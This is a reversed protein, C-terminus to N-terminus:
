IRVRYGIRFSIMEVWLDNGISAGTEIGGKFYATQLYPGIDMSEPPDADVLLFRPTYELFISNKRNPAFELGILPYGGLPIVPDLMTRTDAFFVRLCGGIGLYIRARADAPSLYLAIQLDLVMLPYSVFPEFHGDEEELIPGIGQYFSTVGLKVFLSNPLAFLGVSVGPFQGNWLSLDLNVLTGRRQELLIDGGKEKLLIQQELPDYGLKEARFQYVGPTPASFAAKGEANIRIDGGPLGHILTGPVGTLTFVPDAPLPPLEKLADRVEKWFFTSRDRATPIEGSFRSEARYTEYPIDYLTYTVDVGEDRKQVQVMMWSDCARRYSISSRDNETEPGSIPLGEVIRNNYSNAQLYIVLSDYFLATEEQSMGESRFFVMVKRKPYSSETAGTEQSYVEAGLFLVLGLALYKTSLHLFRM